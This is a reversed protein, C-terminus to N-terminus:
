LKGCIIADQVSLPTAGMVAIDNILHNVMDAAISRYRGREIALKQKSGPEETKLVLVPHKYGRFKADFLSAFAGVANLVRKDNTALARKMGRKAADAAAIDVGAAKYSLRRKKKRPM